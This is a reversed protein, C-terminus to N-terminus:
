CSFYTTEEDCAKDFVIEFTIVMKLCTETGKNNQCVSLGVVFSVIM